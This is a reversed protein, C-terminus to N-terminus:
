RPKRPKNPPRLPVVVFDSRAEAAPEPAPPAHGSGILATRAEHLVDELRRAVSENGSRSAMTMLRESERIIMELAFRAEVSLM